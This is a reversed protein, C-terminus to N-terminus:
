SYADLLDEIELFGPDGIVSHWVGGRDLQSESVENMMSSATHLVDERREIHQLSEGRDVDRFRAPEAGDGWVDNPIAM